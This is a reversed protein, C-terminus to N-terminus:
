ADVRRDLHIVVLVAADQREHQSLQQGGLGKQMSVRRAPCAAHGANHAGRTDSLHRTASRQTVDERRARTFIGLYLTLPEVRSERSWKHFKM